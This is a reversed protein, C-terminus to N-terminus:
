PYTPVVIAEFDNEFLEFPIGDRELFGAFNVQEEPSDLFFKYNKYAWSTDIQLDPVVLLYIGPMCGKLQTLKEGIGDGVQLGGRIFFPVDAGLEIGISELETDPINLDYLQRLGKLVTAANSSGGGLGSGAPIRKELNMSVGGIGFADVMKKWAKVCLNSEDNKLWDVNSFFDCGSNQQELILTDHFDLEQFLTHIIHFGDPRQGRIQLGINVKAFSKLDV